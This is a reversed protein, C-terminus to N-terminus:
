YQTKNDLKKWASFIALSEDRLFQVMPIRRM